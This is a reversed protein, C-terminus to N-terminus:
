FSGTSGLGRAKDGDSKRDGFAKLLGGSQSGLGIGTNQAGQGIGGKQILDSTNFFQEGGIANRIDGELSGTLEATRNAIQGGYDAQDFTDGFDWNGASTRANGAIDGLQSRYGDLVGGGIGQLRSNGATRQQELNAM